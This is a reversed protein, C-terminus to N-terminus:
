RIPKPLSDYIELIKNITNSDTALTIISLFVWIMVIGYNGDEKFKKRLLAYITWWIITM